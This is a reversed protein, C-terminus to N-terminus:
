TTGFHSVKLTLRANDAATRAQSPSISFVGGTFDTSNVLIHATGPAKVISVTRDALSGLDTWSRTLCGILRAEPGGPQGAGAPLTLQQVHVAAAKYYIALEVRIVGPKVPTRLDFRVWPRRACFAAHEGEPPCDCAF